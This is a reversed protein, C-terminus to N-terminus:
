FEFECKDVIFSAETLVFLCKSLEQLHIGNSNNSVLALSFPGDRRLYSYTFITSIFAHAFIKKKM